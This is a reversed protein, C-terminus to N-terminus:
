PEPIEVISQNLPDFRATCILSQGGDYLEMRVTEISAALLTLYMFPTGTPTFVGSYLGQGDFSIRYYAADFGDAITLTLESTSAGTRQETTITYSGLVRPEPAPASKGRIPLIDTPISTDIVCEDVYEDGNFLRVTLESSEGYDIALHRIAQDAPTRAGIRTGGYLIEFSDIEPEYDGPIHIGFVFIMDAVDTYIYYTPLMRSSDGGIGATMDLGAGSLLKTLAGCTLRDFDFLLDNYAAMAEVVDVQLAQYDDMKDKVESFDAKGRRNLELLRDLATKTEGLTKILADAANKATVIAEYEANIQKRLAKEAADVDKKAALYELSATYLAYMEEEVYRTGSIQGKLWEKTFRFFLIKISGDWPADFTKLMADYASKFATTDIDQGNRAQNLFTSVANVKAGYQRRFLQEYSNLSLLELSATMRTAYYLHDNALTYDTLGDLDKRSVSATKLPNKFLYGTTVDFGLIDTLEKKDTEFGRKLAALDSTQTEISKELTDIDAQLATGLILKAMNRSLDERALTLVEEQFAIREQAIYVATFLKGTKSKIAYVMDDREHTLTTIESQLNLPKVTLEYDTILDLKEPFKFSLLPTWRFSQINKAKAKIAAVAETYKMRKVVLENNKKKVADDRAVAVSQAQELYLPKPVGHPLPLAAANTQILLVACVALAFVRKKM